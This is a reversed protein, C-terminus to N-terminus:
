RLRLLADGDPRGSFYHPLALSCFRFASTYFLYADKLDALSGRAQFSGFEQLVHQCATITSITYTPRIM